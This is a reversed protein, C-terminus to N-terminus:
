VDPEPGALQPLPVKLLIKKVTEMTVRCLNNNTLRVKLKFCFFLSFGHGAEVVGIHRRGHAAARDPDTVGGAVGGNLHAAGGATGCRSNCETVSM